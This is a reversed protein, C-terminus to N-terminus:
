FNHYLIAACIGILVIAAIASPTYDYWNNM